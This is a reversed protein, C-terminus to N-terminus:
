IVKTPLRAIWAFVGGLIFGCWPVLPGAVWQQWTILKFVYAKAILTIMVFSLILVILFKKAFKLVFQKFKPFIRSIYLGILCPIISTLLNLLLKDFPIKIQASTSLTRGLTYLWFPMM